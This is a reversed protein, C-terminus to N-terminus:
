RAERPWRTPVVAVGAAQQGVEVSAVRRLAGLDLVDVRGPESGVGEASVFAYRSDPTVALGHPLVTSAAIRAARSGERLEIVETAPETRNRLTVLLYRGDPTVELNYPSPGTAFRRTERWAAVDVEVVRALANCAVYVRSGDASPQAWTPSCAAHGAHEGGGEGGLALTRAVSGTGVDIEVLKGDMMCVSYHRRGDPSVRSGHPMVCTETRAVEAMTPLHVKSVSSPVHDGHVNFNSVFAYEGDPTLGVTAAFPGLATRELVRDDRLSIKWLSGYPTGHAISVYYHEGEPGVAVGHPGDIEMPMAGVRRTGEVRAGTPGFRVRAVEDASESVVLALYEGAPLSPPRAAACGALLLALGPLPARARM